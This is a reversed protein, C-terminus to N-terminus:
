HKYSVFIAQCASQYKSDLSVHVALLLIYVHITYNQVRLDELDNPKNRQVFLGIIEMFKQGCM